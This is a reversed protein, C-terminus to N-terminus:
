PFIHGSYTCTSEELHEEHVVEGVHVAVAPIQHDFDVFVVGNPCLQPVISPDKLTEKPYIDDFHGQFGFVKPFQGSGM